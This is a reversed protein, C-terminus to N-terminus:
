GRGRVLWIGGVVAGVVVAIVVVILVFAWLGMGATMWGNMM